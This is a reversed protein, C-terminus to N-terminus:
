VFEMAPWQGNCFSNIIRALQGVPQCGCVFFSDGMAIELRFVDKDCLVSAYFNEIKPQGLQRTGFNRKCFMRPHVGGIWFRLWSDNQASNTVHRRFLNAAAGGIM